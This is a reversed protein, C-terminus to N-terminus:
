VLYSNKATQFNPDSKRTGKATWVMSHKGMNWDIYTIPLPGPSHQPVVQELVDQDIGWYVYDRHFFDAIADSYQQLFVCNRQDANLWIGGALFRAKRGHIRHLYFPYDHGPATLPQRVVADVDMAFMQYRADYTEALRVFRVCAFYTKIMRELMSRDNGKSMAKLTRDRFSTELENIPDTQWREAARALSDPAVTEHSHTIRTHSALYDLQAPTPNFVHFHVDFDSHAFV